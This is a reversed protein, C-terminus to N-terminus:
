KNARNYINKPWRRHVWFWNTPNELIHQEIFQTVKCVGDYIDTTNDGTRQLPIPPHITIEFKASGTRIISMPILPVNMKLAMRTPGPATMADVGFFPVEIGENFKQDNMLAVSEGNKLASILQKAGKVGSKAVMLTTGYATRQAHIRKNLYPNNIRRYTTCVPLDSQALAAAMLEWNAFHGSFFVAPTKENILRDLHERGVITVCTGGQFIKIRELVPFEGFTRGINYWSQKLWLDIQTDSANPFAIKMGTKAIHHKSTKPGIWAIIRGSFASIQALSFPTMMLRVIDYALAELRWIFHKFFKVIM